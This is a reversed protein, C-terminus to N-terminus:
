KGRERGRKGEEGGEEEGRGRRVSDRHNLRNVRTSGSDCLDDWLHSARINGLDERERNKPRLDIPPYISM